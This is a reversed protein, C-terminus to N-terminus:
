GCYYNIFRSGTDLKNDKLVKKIEDITNKIANEENYAPIIVSVM